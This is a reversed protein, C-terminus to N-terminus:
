MGAFSKRTFDRGDGVFPVRYGNLIELNEREQKIRLAYSKVGSFEM